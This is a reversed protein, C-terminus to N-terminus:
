RVYPDSFLDLLFREILHTVCTDSFFAFGLQGHFFPGVEYNDAQLRVSQWYKGPLDPIMNKRKSQPTIESLQAIQQRFDVLKEMAEHNQFSFPERDTFSM